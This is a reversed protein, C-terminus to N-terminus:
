RRALELLDLIPVGGPQSRGSRVRATVTITSLPALARAAEVLSDPVALYLISREKGPGRALLYPEGNLERRLGDAIQYSLAEVTWRVTRGKTGVPDARLDAASLEGAAKETADTLDSTPVWGELRVRTWGNDATLPTVVTGEPLTAVVHGDPGSRLASSGSIQMSPLLPAPAIARAAKAAPTQSAAQVPTKASPAASIEPKPASPAPAKPKPPAAPVNFK